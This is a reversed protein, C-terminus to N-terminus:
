NGALALGKRNEELDIMSVKPSVRCEVWQPLPASWERGDLVTNLFSHLYVEVGGYSKMVHM